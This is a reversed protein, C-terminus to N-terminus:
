HRELPKGWRPVSYDSSTRAVQNTRADFLWVQTESSCASPRTEGPELYQSATLRVAVKGVATFGLPDVSVLCGEGFSAIQGTLPLRKFVGTDANYIWIESSPPADSGWQWLLVDFLLQTGDKSWDILRVGNGLLM